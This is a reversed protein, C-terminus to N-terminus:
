RADAGMAARLDVQARCYEFEAEVALMRADAFQAERLQIRLLDSRGLDLARREAVVLQEALVANTRAADRQAAAMLVASRADAVENEIRDRAFQVELRLRSLQAQAFEVRGLADRRRLPFKFEGGVFVGNRDLDNYNEAGLARTAEFVLDLNPLTQNEALQRDTDIREIQLELRRLEPRQRLALAVALGLDDAATGTLPEFESPLWTDPPVLPRDREDRLFLSLELAAQQLQRDARAVFVERQALLRNNDVVDIPALLQRDVARQLDASRESALRLLERAVVIRQGAAVWAFYARGAARRFDIRARAITPDAIEADIEAQRLTARRRDISRDRFLPLRVGLLVLGDDQTRSKDYDPLFGDSVRYGGYITDGTTLPQELLAEFTTAEYYGRLQGGVKASLNPDFGGSAQLLRGSALDRELLAALYPPYRNDVSALVETLRLPEKRSADPVALEQPAPAEPAAALAPDATASAQSQGQSAVSAPLAEPWGPNSRCGLAVLLCCGSWAGFQRANTV